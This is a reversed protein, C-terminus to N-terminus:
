GHYVHSVTGDDDVHVNLRNPNFDKTVMMGPKIVRSEQPLERKCFIQERVRTLKQRPHQCSTLIPYLTPLTPYSLNSFLGRVTENSGQDESLKKGVLKKVWEGTKDGPGTSVDPVVLPM